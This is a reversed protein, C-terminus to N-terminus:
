YYITSVNPQWYSRYSLDTYGKCAGELICHNHEPLEIFSFFTCPRRNCQKDACLTKAECCSRGLSWLIEDLEFFNKKAQQAILRSAEGCANRIERDSSLPKKDRLSKRLVEDTIEVCGTRLLLRQMHYDMVPEISELDKIKYLNANTALQIFVTSKKRLPDAFATFDQLLYYLGTKNNKLFGNSTQLLNKVQGSYKANLTKATQILLTSRKDLRDLTCNKPNGDEAFLPRLKCSLEASSFNAIIEPKLLPSNDQGLQAFVDELYNWGKLNQRKNILSHTQHCIASIYLYVRLKTEPDAAFTLFPRKFHEPRFRLPRLCKAVLACQNSNIIVKQAM